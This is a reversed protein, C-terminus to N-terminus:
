NLNVFEVFFEKRIGNMKIGFRRRIILQKNMVNIARIINKVVSSNSLLLILRHIITSVAPKMMLLSEM